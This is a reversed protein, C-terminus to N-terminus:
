GPDRKKIERSIMDATPWSLACGVVVSAGIAWWNIVGLSVAVTALGGTLVAGTM